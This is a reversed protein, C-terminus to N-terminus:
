NALKELAAGLAQLLGISGREREGADEYGDLFAGQETLTLRTGSGAQKLEFTALSVSIKRDDMHMEYSFVLREDPIVDFYVADFKSM